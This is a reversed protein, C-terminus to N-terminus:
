CRKRLMNIGRRWVTLCVSADEEEEEDYPPDDDLEEQSMNLSVAHSPIAWPDSRNIFRHIFYMGVILPLGVYASIFDGTSWRGPFFVTFGNLLCMLAFIIMTVYSGYPQMWSRQTLAEGPMGQVDCAKRFRLYTIGCCVWSLFGGTNVLNLLWYLVELSNSSVTMYALPTVASIAAVAYIPVGKSTCRKFVAPANGEVAMTHLARSALYLFANGTSWAAILVVINIVNDLGSIGASRIGVVWPSSGADSGATLAEANSPCIVSIGIVSGVFAVILRWLFHRAAKPINKRPQKIEGATGVIMEPTFTFPLASGVLTAVFAVFRGVDGELIYEKAPGPTEWYRFALRDRHPGGGWFLIFSLILLGFITCIKVGTFFFEAEGYFRVPLVNLVILLVGLITIWAASPIPNDWFDIIIACAVLEFPVLIAYSYIYLLSMAFGFSRSVFRTGYHSMSGGRVPLFTAMEVIAGLISYVLLSIVIYSGVLFAPGGRALGKGTTIFLGTGVTGGWAIFIAHRSTLKRQTTRQMHHQQELEVVKPTDLVNPSGEKVSLSSHSMTIAECFFLLLFLSQKLRAFQDIQRDREEGLWRQIHHRM